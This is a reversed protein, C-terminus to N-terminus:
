SVPKGQWIFATVELTRSPALGKPLLVEIERGDPPPQFRMVLFRTRSTRVTRVERGALLVRPTEGGRGLKPLWLELSVLDGPSWLPPLLVQLRQDVENDFSQRLVKRSDVLQWSHLRAALPAGRGRFPSSRFVLEQEGVPEGVALEFVEADARSRVGPSLKELDAVAVVASRAARRNKLIMRGAVEEALVHRGPLPALAGRLYSAAREVNSPVVSNYVYKNAPWSVVLVAALGAVWWFRRDRSVPLGTSVLETRGVWGLIGVVLWAAALSSVPLLPLWNHASPNSTSLAYLLVYSLPFSLLMWLELRRKEGVRRRLAWILLGAMGVLAVSGAVPGHFNDTVLSEGAHLILSAKSAQEAIGKREYDRLTRNFDTVYLQFDTLLYPNLVLFTLVSAAGAAFIWALFRRDRRGKWFALVTVPLAIPGANFKTALALGVAAGAALFRRLRPADLAALALLIALEVTLILLIDPKYIASQRIHWPVVSMIFAATLGVEPGFLRRGILFLLFLSLTGFVAQSFRCLRYALPTFGEGRLIALQKSGTWQHLGHVAGLLAAQPLYSLSPHYGNAPHIQGKELLVHINELGYREDWFRSPDLGISGFWIRAAFSWVLLAALSWRVWSPNPRSDKEEDLTM